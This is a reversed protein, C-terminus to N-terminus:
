RGFRHTAGAVFQSILRDTIIPRLRYTKAALEIRDLADAIIPHADAVYVDYGGMEPREIAEDITGLLMLHNAPGNFGLEPAYALLAPLESLEGDLKRWYSRAEPIAFIERRDQAYGSFTIAVKGAVKEFGRRKIQGRIRHLLPDIIGGEAHEKAVPHFQYGLRQLGEQVIRLSNFSEDYPGQREQM